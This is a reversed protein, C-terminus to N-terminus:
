NLQFIKNNKYFDDQEPDYYYVNLHAMLHRDFSPAMIEMVGDGDVDGMALQVSNGRYEFFGNYPHHIDKKTILRKLGNANQELFEVRIGNRTKFKLVKIFTGNGMIDGYIVSLLKNKNPLLYSRIKFRIPSFLIFWSIIQAGMLLSFGIIWKKM